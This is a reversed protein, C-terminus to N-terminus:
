LTRLLDQGISMVPRELRAASRSGCPMHLTPGGVVLVYM